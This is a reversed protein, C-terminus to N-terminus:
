VTKSGPWFPFVITMGKRLTKKDTLGNEKNKIKNKIKQDNQIKNQHTKETIEEIENIQIRCKSTVM